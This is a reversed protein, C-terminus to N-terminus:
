PASCLRRSSVSRASVWDFYHCHAHEHGRGEVLGLEVPQSLDRRPQGHRAGIGLGGVVRARLDEVAPGERGIARGRRSQLPDLHVHRADVPQVLVREVGVARERERGCAAHVRRGDGLVRDRGEQRQRVAHRAHDLPLAPADPRGVLPAPRQEHRGRHAPRGEADDAVAADAALEGADGLGRERHPHQRALPVRRAALIASVARGARPVGLAAQGVRPERRSLQGVQEGARVDDHHARRQCALGPVHDTRALEARHLPRGVEDVHSAAGADVLLRERAREGLLADGARRDVDEGLLRRRAAM